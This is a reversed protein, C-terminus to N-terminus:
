KIEDNHPAFIGFSPADTGYKVSDMYSNYIMAVVMVSFLLFVIFYLKTEIAQTYRNSTM